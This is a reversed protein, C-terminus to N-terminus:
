RWAWAPAPHGVAAASHRPAEDLVAASGLAVPWGCAGSGSGRPFSGRLALLRLLSLSLRHLAITVLLSFMGPGAFDDNPQEPAISAARAFAFCGGHV